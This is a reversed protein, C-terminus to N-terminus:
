SQHKYNLHLSPFTKLSIIDIAKAFMHLRLSLSPVRNLEESTDVRIVFVM